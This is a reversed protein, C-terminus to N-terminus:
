SFAPEECLNWDGSPIHDGKVDRGWHFVLCTEVSGGPLTVQVETPTYGANVEMRYADVLGPDNKNEFYFVDGTVTGEETFVCVPYGKFGPFAYYLRGQTTAGEVVRDAGGFFAIGNGHGKRLTGYVFVREM